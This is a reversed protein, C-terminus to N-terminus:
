LRKERTSASLGAIAYIIIFSYITSFVVRLILLRLNFVQIAEVGFLMLCYIAAMTLAYKMYVAIGMNRPSPRQEALDIDSSVYLHFIGHQFFALLTCCLANLGPTDSLVDVALGSFFGISTAAISSYTIPLSIIIYIFVVPVAVNFLVMNNFFVAQVPILILMTLLINLATRNM